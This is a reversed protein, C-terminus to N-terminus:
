SLIPRVQHYICTLRHRGLEEPRDVSAMAVNWQMCFPRADGGFRGKSSTAKPRRVHSTSGSLTSSRASTADQARRHGIDSDSGLGQKQARGVTYLNRDVRRERCSVSLAQRTAKFFGNAGPADVDESVNEFTASLQKTSTLLSASTGDVGTDM